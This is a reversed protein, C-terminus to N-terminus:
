TGAKEPGPPFLQFILDEIFRTQGVVGEASLPDSHFIEKLLPALAFHGFSLHLFLAALVPLLGEDWRNLVPQAKLMQLMLKVMPDFWKGALTPLYDGEAIAELYILRSVHPREGLHTMVGQLLRRTTELDQPGAAFEQMLETMPRVGRDLVAEYLASKSPYYNYLTAGNVGAAEAIERVRTGNLGHRAFVVEAANLIREETLAARDGHQTAPVM